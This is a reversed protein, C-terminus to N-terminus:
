EIGSICEFRIRWITEGKLLGVSVLTPTKKVERQTGSNTSQDPIKLLLSFTYIESKHFSSMGGSLTVM